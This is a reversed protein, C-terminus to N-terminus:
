ATGLAQKINFSNESIHNQIATKGAPTALFRKFAGADLFNVITFKNSGAAPSPM